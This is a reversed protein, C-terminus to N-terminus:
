WMLILVHSPYCLELHGVPSVLTQTFIWLGDHFNNIFYKEDLSPCSVFWNNNM